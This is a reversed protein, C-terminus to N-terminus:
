RYGTPRHRPTRHGGRKKAEGTQKKCVGWAAGPNRLKPAVAQVCRDTKGDKPM